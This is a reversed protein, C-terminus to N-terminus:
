EKYMRSLLVSALEKVQYRLIELNRGRESSVRAEPAERRLELSHPPASFVFLLHTDSAEKTVETVNAAAGVKREKKKDITLPAFLSRLLRVQGKDRM